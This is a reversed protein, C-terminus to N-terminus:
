RLEPESSEASLFPLNVPTPISELVEVKGKRRKKKKFKTTVDLYKTKSSKKNKAVKETIPNVDSLNSLTAPTNVPNNISIESKIPLAKLTDVAIEKKSVVKKALAVVPKQPEVVVPTTSQKLEAIESVSSKKTKITIFNFLLFSFAIIVIGFVLPLIVTRNLTFNFNPLLQKKRNDNFKKYYAEYSLWAEEKFPTELDKLQNRMNREEIEYNFHNSM